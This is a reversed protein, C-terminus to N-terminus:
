QCELTTASTGAASAVCMLSSGSGVPYAVCDAVRLVDGPNGVGTLPGGDPNPTGADPLNLALICKITPSGTNEPSNCVTVSRRGISPAAPVPVATTGVTVSTQVPANCFNPDGALALGSLLLVAVGSAILFPKFSSRM